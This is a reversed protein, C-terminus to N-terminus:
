APRNRSVIGAEVEGEQGTTTSRLRAGYDDVSTEYLGSRRACQPGSSRTVIRRSIRSVWFFVPLPELLHCISLTLYEIVLSAVLPLWQCRTAGIVPGCAGIVRGVPAVSVIVARLALQRSRLSGM